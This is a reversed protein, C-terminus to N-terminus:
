ESREAEAREEAERQRRKDRERLARELARDLDEQIEQESDTADPIICELLAWQLDNSLDLENLAATTTQIFYISGNLSQEFQRAAYVDRMHSGPKFSGKATCRFSREVGMVQFEPEEADDIPRMTGWPWVFDSTPLNVITPVQLQASAVGAFAACACVVIGFRSVPRM